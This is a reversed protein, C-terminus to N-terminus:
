RSDRRAQARQNSSRQHASITRARPQTAVAKPEVASDALSQNRRTTKGARKAAKAPAKGSTKAAAKKASAKRAAAKKAVAKKVAKKLGSASSAVPVQKQAKAFDLDEQREIKALRDEFRVVVEALIEEKQQTRQNATGRSGGKSGATDRMAVRQRRYLDRYKDRLKRARELKGRVTTKDLTRVVNSRGADFLTLEAATLLKQAQTRTYAM